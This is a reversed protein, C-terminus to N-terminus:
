FENQPLGTLKAIKRFTELYELAIKNWSFNTKTYEKAKSSISRIENDTLHLIWLIKEKFSRMNQREVLYGNKGDHIADSIGDINSAIVPLGHLAAELAAIGFGEVDNKVPINPMIFINSLEYITNLDNDSVRGLVFVHNSLNKQCITKQIKKFNPGTGVILYLINPNIAILDPFVNELFNRVGKREILRGVTLLIKSNSTKPIQYKKFVDSIQSKKECAATQIGNPIVSIRTSDPQFKSAIDATNRSICFLHDLRKCFFTIIKNYGIRSYTIDLGHITATVQKRLIIKLVYGLPALAGDSVHIIDIKKRKALAIAKVFAVILFFPAFLQTHGWAILHLNSCSELHSVLYKNFTQMGGISPPYKRTIYILTLGQPPTATHAAMKKMHPPLLLRILFRSFTEPMFTLMFIIKKRLKLFPQITPGKQACERAFNKQGHLLFRVANSFYLKSLIERLSNKESLPLSPNSTLINKIIPEIPLDSTPLFKKLTARGQVECHYTVCIKKSFAAQYCSLIKIWTILDEQLPIMEPFFDFEKLILKPICVSSATLPDVRYAMQYFINEIIGKENAVLKKFNHNILKNKYSIRQYATAYIGCNPFRNILVHIEALFDPCWCDDADLFAIYEHKAEHIGKNRAAGAGKNDQTIIQIKSNKDYHSIANLSGDTSGDNVIILEFNQYEQRLVSNVARQIHKEKNYLPIVVSFNITSM